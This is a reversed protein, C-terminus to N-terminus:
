RVCFSAFAVICLCLWWSLCAMLIPFPSTVATLRPGPSYSSSSTRNSCLLSLSLSVPLSPSAPWNACILKLFCYSLVEPHVCRIKSCAPLIQYLVEGSMQLKDHCISNHLFIDWDTSFLLIINRNQTYAWKSPVVKARYTLNCQIWLFHILFIIPSIINLQSWRDETFDWGTQSQSIKDKWLTEWKNQGKDVAALASNRTSNDPARENHIYVKALNRPLIVTPELVASM